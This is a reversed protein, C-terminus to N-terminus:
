FGGYQSYSVLDLNTTSLVGGSLSLGGDVTITEIDGTGATSRGLLVGTAVQQIKAFTIANNPITFDITDTTSNGAVSIMGSSSTLTLTDTPSDAVPYTGSDTQITTFSDSAATSPNVLDLTGTFVNFKYGM